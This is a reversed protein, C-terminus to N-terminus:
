VIKTTTNRSIKLIPIRLPNPIAASTPRKAVIDNNIPVNPTVAIAPCWIAILIAETVKINGIPREITIEM